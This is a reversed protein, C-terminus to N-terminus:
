YVLIWLHGNLVAASHENRPPWNTDIVELKWSAGDFSSWVDNTNSNTSDMGGMLWLQGGASVTKHFRRPSWLADSNVETWNLGDPSSWVDNVEVGGGM